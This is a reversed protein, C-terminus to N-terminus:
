FLIAAQFYIDEFFKRGKDGTDKFNNWFQRVVENEVQYDIFDFASTNYQVSLQFHNLIEVGIGAGGGLLFPKIGSDKFSAAEYGISKTNNINASFSGKVPGLGIGIFPSVFLYPRIGGFDKGWQVQVPFELFPATVFAASGTNIRTYFETYRKDFFLEPQLSFGYKLPIRVGTGFQYIGELESRAAFGAFVLFRPHDTAELGEQAKLTISAVLCIILLIVKRM